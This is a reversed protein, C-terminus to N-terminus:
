GHVRGHRVFQLRRRIECCGGATQQNVIAKTASAAYTNASDVADDFICQSTTGDTEGISMLNTGTLLARFEVLRPKFGVGTVAQTGTALSMDRTFSGIKIGPSHLGITKFNSGDCVITCSEGPYLDLTTAGNITESANPDLTIVGTGDNRYGIAWGDGLTAAATLTQTFTSTAKITKGVDSFGLITNSSRALAFSEDATRLLIWASNAANRRKTVNNATDVWLQYAYTTGPATAGSSLTVLAQLENNIDSRFAAGAQNAISQDGQVECWRRTTLWSEIRREGTKRRRANLFERVTNM